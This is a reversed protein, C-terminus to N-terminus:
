RETVEEIQSIAFDFQLQRLEELSLIKGEPIREKLVFHILVDGPAAKVAIRNFQVPVQLLSTLLDATAQHGVASIFGRSLLQRVEEISAKRIKVTVRPFREFDIPIVLTNLVYITM